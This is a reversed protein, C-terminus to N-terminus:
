AGRVSAILRQDDGRTLALVANIEDRRDWWSILEGLEEFTGTFIPGTPNKSSGHTEARIHVLDVEDDKGSAQISTEVRGGWSCVSARIGSSAHGLRSAEGRGGQVTGYFRAM